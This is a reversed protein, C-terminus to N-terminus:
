NASLIADERSVTLACPLYRDLYYM